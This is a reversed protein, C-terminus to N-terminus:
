LARCGFKADKARAPSCKWAGPGAFYPSFVQSAANLWLRLRHFDRLAVRRQYATNQIVAIQAGNGIRIHKEHSHGM